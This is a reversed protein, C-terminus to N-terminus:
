RFFLELFIIHSKLRLVSFTPRLICGAFVFIRLLWLELGPFDTTQYEVPSCRVGFLLSGSVLPGARGTFLSM